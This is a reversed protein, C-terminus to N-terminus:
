QMKPYNVLLFVLAIKHVFLLSVHDLLVCAVIWIGSCFYLQCNFNITHISVAFGKLNCSLGLCLLM